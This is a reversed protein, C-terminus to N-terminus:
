TEKEEMRFPIAAHRCNYGGRFVGFNQPTTGPIMGQGNNFALNIESQLTDIPLVGEKERVWRVCQSRSDDVLSGVYRYADLGYERAIAANVTGDYQNISDRAIQGAYRKLIGSRQGSGTILLELQKRTEQQGQGLIVANFMADRIPKVLNTDVNEGGTLGLVLDDIAQKKIPNPNVKTSKIDNGVDQIELTLETIRDFDRLYPEIKKTYTSDRLIKKVEKNLATLLQLNTDNNVLRGDVIDFRNIIGAVSKMIANETPQLSNLFDEDANDMISLKKKILKDLESGSKIGDALEAM